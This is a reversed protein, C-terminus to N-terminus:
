HKLSLRKLPMYVPMAQRIRDIEIIDNWLKM